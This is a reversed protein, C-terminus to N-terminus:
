TGGSPTTITSQSNTSTSWLERPIRLEQRTLPTDILVADFGSLDNLIRSKRFLYTQRHQPRYRLNGTEVIVRSNTPLLKSLM